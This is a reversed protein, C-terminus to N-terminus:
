KKKPKVEVKVREEEEKFLKVPKSYDIQTECAWCVNELNTLARACNECYNAGCKCAFSFGIVEGRCVLCIKKEKTIAVKEEIIQTKVMVRARDMRKIQESIQALEFRENLPAQSDNLQKWLELQDILNKHEISIEKALVNLNHREAIQQAQTLFRRSKKLDFTLLALKAQFLYTEAQLSHSQTKETITLLRTILPELENLVELNNTLRFEALLIDYLNILAVMSYEILFVEDTAIQRLIKEAKAMDHIRPSSKLVLAKSMRYRQEVFKDKTQSNMQKLNQLYKKAGDYDGKKLAIRIATYFRGGAFVDNLDDNSVAFSAEIYNSAQDYDETFDRYIEALFNLANSMMKRNDLEEFISLCEKFIKLGREWDGIFHYNQGLIMLCLAITAKNKSEKAITVGKEIYSFSLDMDSSNKASFALAWLVTAHLRKFDTKEALDLSRKVCKLSLDIKGTYFYFLGKLYALYAERKMRKSSLVQTLNKLLEEGQIIVDFIRDLKRLWFLSEAMNIFCDVSLINKELGLSENYSQEALTLSEEYRGQQFLLNARLLHSAVKDHLTLSEKKEFNNLLEHAENVKADDILKEARLLEEPKEINEPKQASM